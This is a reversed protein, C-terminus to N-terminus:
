HLVEKIPFRLIKKFDTVASPATESRGAGFQAMSGVGLGFGLILGFFNCFPSV